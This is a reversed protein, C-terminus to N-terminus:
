IHRLRPTMELFFFLEAHSYPQRSNRHDPLMAMVCRQSNNAHVGTGLISSVLVMLLQCTMALRSSARFDLTRWTKKGAGGGSSGQSEVKDHVFFSLAQVGHWTNDHDCGVCGYGFGDCIVFL